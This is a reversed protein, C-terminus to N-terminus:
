RPRALWSAIADRVFGEDHHDEYESRRDTSTEFVTRVTMGDADFVTDEITVYCIVSDSGSQERFHIRNSTCTTVTTRLPSAVVEVIEADPSGYVDHPWGGTRSETRAEARPVAAALAQEILPARERLWRDVIERVELPDDHDGSGESITRTEQHLTRERVGGRLVTAEVIQVTQVSSDPGSQAHHYVRYSTAVTVVLQPTARARVIVLTPGRCGTAMGAAIEADYARTARARATDIVARRAAEDASDWGALADSRVEIMRDPVEGVDREAGATADLESLKM